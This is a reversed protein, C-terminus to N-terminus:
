CCWWRSSRGAGTASSRTCRRRAALVAAQGPHDALRLGEGARLRPWRALKDRKRRAPSCCRRSPRSAARAITPLTFVM